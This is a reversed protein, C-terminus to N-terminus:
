QGENHIVHYQMMNVKVKKSIEPYHKEFYVMADDSENLVEATYEFGPKIVPVGGLKIKEKTGLVNLTGIYSITSSLVEFTILIEEEATTSGVPISISSIRYVGAPLEIFFYGPQVAKVDWSFHTQASKDGIYLQFKNDENNVDEIFFKVYTTQLVGQFDTKAFIVGKEEVYEQLTESKVNELEPSLDNDPLIAQTSSSEEHEQKEVVVEQVIPLEVDPPMVESVTACGSLLM